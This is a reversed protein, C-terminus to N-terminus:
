MGFRWNLGLRLLNEKLTSGAGAGVWIWEGKQASIKPLAM